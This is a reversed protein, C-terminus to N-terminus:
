KVVWNPNVDIQPLGQRKLETNTLRMVEYLSAKRWKGGERLSYGSDDWKFRGCLVGFAIKLINPRERGARTTLAAVGEEVGIPKYKSQTNVPKVGNPKYGQQKLFKRITEITFPNLQQTVYGGEALYNRIHDLTNGHKNMHIILTHADKTKKQQAHVEDPKRFPKGTPLNTVTFNKTKHKM